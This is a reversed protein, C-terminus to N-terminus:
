RNDDSYARNQLVRLLNKRYFDISNESVKEAHIDAMMGLFSVVADRFKDDKLLSQAISRLLMLEHTM